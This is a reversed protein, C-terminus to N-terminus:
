GISIDILLGNFQVSPFIYLNKYKLFEILENFLDLNEKRIQLIINALLCIYDISCTPFFDAKITNIIINQNENFEDPTITIPIKNIQQYFGNLTRTMYFIDQYLSINDLKAQIYFCTFLDFYIDKKNEKKEQSKMLYYDYMAVIKHYLREHKYIIYNIYYQNLEENNIQKQLFYFFILLADKREKLDEKSIQIPQCLAITIEFIKNLNLIKVEINEGITEREKLYYRMLNKNNINKKKEKKILSSNKSSFRKILIFKSKKNIYAKTM